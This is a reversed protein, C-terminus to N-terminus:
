EEDVQERARAADMQDYVALRRVRLTGLAKIDDAASGLPKIFLGGFIEEDLGLDALWDALDSSTLTEGHRLVQWIRLSVDYFFSEWTVDSAEIEGSVIRSLVRRETDFDSIVTGFLKV